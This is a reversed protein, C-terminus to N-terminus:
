RRRRCARRTRCPCISDWKPAPKGWGRQGRGTQNGEAGETVTHPRIFGSLPEMPDNPIGRLTQPSPSSLTNELSM